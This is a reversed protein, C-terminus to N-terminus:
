STTNGYRDFTIVILVDSTGGKSTNRNSASIERRGNVPYNNVNSTSGGGGHLLANTVGNIVSEIRINNITSESSTNLKRQKKRQEIAAARDPHNM